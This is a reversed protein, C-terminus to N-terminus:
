APAPRDLPMVRVPGFDAHGANADAAPESTGCFIGFRAGTWAGARAFFEPGLQQWGDAADDYSFRCCGGEGM